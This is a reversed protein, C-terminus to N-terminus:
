ARQARPAGGAKYYVTALDRLWRLGLSETERRKSGKRGGDLFLQTVEVGLLREGLRVVFDPGEGGTVDVPTCSWGAVGVFRDLYIRETTKKSM